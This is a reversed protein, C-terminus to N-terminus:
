SEDIVKKLSASLDFVTYPKPLADRFGHAAFGTLAPHRHNGSSAILRADPDITLIGQATEKGEMGRASELDMIVAAFPTGSEQAARYRDIAERGNSCCNPKFGLQFLMESTVELVTFEDDVVLIPSRESPVAYSTM